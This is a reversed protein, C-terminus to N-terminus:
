GTLRAKYDAGWPTDATGNYNSILSGWTDWVWAYYSEGNSDMWDLFQNTKTVTSGNPGVEGADIPM